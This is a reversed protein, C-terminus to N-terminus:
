LFYNYKGTHSNVVELSSFGRPMQLGGESFGLKLEYQHFPLFSRTDIIQTTSMRASEAKLFLM